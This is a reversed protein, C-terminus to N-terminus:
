KAMEPKMGLARVLFAWRDAAEEIVKATPKGAGHGARVDIRILAPNACDKPMAAQLAAAFKFSHAPVVRDDHDATMVMTPPYCTGPKINHLPSYARLAKFQEVTSGEGDAAGYDSRWAHGITFKHFRLMDLVGVEPLCAGFLEPRQTMCAGVLLGGNSGGRIALKKPSTYNEKVLYEGAAIFDDFVNQKVLKTGAQHWEEGYEGGGRINAVAFVGGMEMWVLNTVSFTPTISINFGGYGYLLTPRQGDTKVSKKHVIFMPVKTGDKSTYFVQKTVYDDPNFAVKAEKFLTSKGSAVDYRYTRTPSTFGAFSYFTETDTRKGGFGGATGIGPLEVNRVFKGDMAHVKIESKADRLYNAFFMDGVLSVGQLTADSQPIVEKWNKPDPNALDIAILRGRPAKLDTQFYMVAGDNAVFNYSADFADLLKTVKLDGLEGTSLDKVYLRNKPDTGKSVNIVLYKGDETVGGAYGWDKKAEETSHYVLVDQTQPTGIKHFYLKQYYNSNTLSNEGQKPEDFRSYFFGSGDKTFSAGSFKVWNVVDATDKGTAIDRVKWTNWDSGAEAIGYAMYRGDDSVAMGALAMTGDAKLTNPDLLVRAEGDLKDATYIVNQNQLGSNYSWFYRGGDKSPAGYKEFNWLKTIREEIAKREPVADLYSRTLAVQAEIWKQSDSADPDELWRYPDAVKTGHYDDVQDVTHAPPYVWQTQAVASSAALLVALSSLSAKIM